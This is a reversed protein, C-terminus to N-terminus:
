VRNSKDVSKVTTMQNHHSTVVSTPLVSSSSQSHLVVKTVAATSLGAPKM